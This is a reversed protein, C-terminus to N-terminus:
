EVHTIINNGDTREASYSAPYNNGIERYIEVVDFITILYIGSKRKYDSCIFFGILSKGDPTFPSFHYSHIFQNCLTTVSVNVEKGKNLEFENSIDTVILSQTKENKPFEHIKYTKKLVTESIKKSEILKRISYFGFFLEKEVTYYIKESWRKQVLRLELKTALKLLDDKWYSSESIM